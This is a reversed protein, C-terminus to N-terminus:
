FILELDGPFGTYSILVNSWTYCIELARPLIPYILGGLLSWIRPILDFTDFSYAMTM